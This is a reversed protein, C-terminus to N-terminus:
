AHERQEHRVAHNPGVERRAIRFYAGFQAEAVSLKPERHQEVAKAGDRKAEGRGGDDTTEGRSTNAHHRHAEHGDRREEHHESGVAVDEGRQEERKARDVRENVNGLVGVPQAHLAFVPAVDDVGEVAHPANARHDAPEHAPEGCTEANRKSHM